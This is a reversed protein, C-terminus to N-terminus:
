EFGMIEYLCEGELPTVKGHEIINGSYKAIVRFYTPRAIFTRAVWQSFPNLDAATLLDVDEVLANFRINLHAEVEGEAFDISIQRPYHRKLVPHTVFDWQRITPSGAGV